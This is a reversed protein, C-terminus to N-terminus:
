ICVVKIARQCISFYLHRKSKLLRNQQILVAEYSLAEAAMTNLAYMHWLFPQLAPPFATINEETLYLAMKTRWKVDFRFTMM